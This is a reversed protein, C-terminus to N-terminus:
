PAEELQFGGVGCRMKVRPIIITLLNPAGIVPSTKHLHKFFWHYNFSVLFHSLSHLECWRQFTGINTLQSSQSQYSVFVLVRFDRFSAMSFATSESQRCSRSSYIFFYSLSQSRFTVYIYSRLPCSKGLCSRTAEKTCGQFQNIHHQQPRAM